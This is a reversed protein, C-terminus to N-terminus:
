GEGCCFEVFVKYSWTLFKVIFPSCNIINLGNCM